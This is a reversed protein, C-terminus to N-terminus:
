QRQLAAVRASHWPAATIKGCSGGPGGVMAPRVEGLGGGNCDIVTSVIYHPNGFLGQM